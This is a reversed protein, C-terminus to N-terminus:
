GYKRMKEILEIFDTKSYQHDSGIIHVAGYNVSIRKAMKRWESESMKLFGQITGLNGEWVTFDDTAGRIESKSHVKLSKDM